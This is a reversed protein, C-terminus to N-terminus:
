CQNPNILTKDMRNGFWLGQVFILIVVEVLEMTYSTAGTCIPINVQESYEEMFPSVACEESKFPIPRINRGFCHTDKHNIM